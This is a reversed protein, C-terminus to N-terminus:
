QLATTGSIYLDDYDFEIVFTKSISEANITETFTFSIFFKADNNLDIKKFLNPKKDFTTDINNISFTKETQKAYTSSASYMIEEGDDNKAWDYCLYGKVSISSTINENKFNGIKVNISLSGNEIGNEEVDDIIFKTLYIESLSFYNEDLYSVKTFTVDEDEFPKVTNNSVTVLSLGVIFLILLLGIMGLMIPVRKNIAKDYVNSTKNEKAM